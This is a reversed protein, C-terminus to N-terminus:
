LTFDPTIRSPKGKMRGALSGPAGVQTRQHSFYELKQLPKPGIVKELLTRLSRALSRLKLEDSSATWIQLTTPKNQRVKLMVGNLNTTSEALSEGSCAMLMAMFADDMTQKNNLGPKDRDFIVFTITGGNKNRTHEWNPRIDRRFWHYTFAPLLTSPPPLHRWLRWFCEVDGVLHVLVPHYALPAGFPTPHEDAYLAWVTNFRVPEAPAPKDLVEVQFLSPLMSGSFDNEVIEGVTFNQTSPAGSADVSGGNAAVADEEPPSAIAVAKEGVEVVEKEQPQLSAPTTDKFETSPGRQAEPTAPFKSSIKPNTPTYPTASLSLPKAGAQQVSDSKWVSLPPVPEVSEWAQPVGGPPGAVYPLVQGVLGFGQSGRPQFPEASARLTTQSSPAVQQQQQQPPPPPPPQQREGRVPIQRSGGGNGRRGGSGPTRNGKPVFEEAEPNM